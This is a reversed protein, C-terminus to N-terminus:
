LTEEKQGSPACLQALIIQSILEAATIIGLYEKEIIYDTKETVNRKEQQM